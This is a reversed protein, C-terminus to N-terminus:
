GSSIQESQLDLLLFVCFLSLNPIAYPYPSVSDTSTTIQGGIYLLIHLIYDMQREYENFTSLLLLFFVCVFDELSLFGVM